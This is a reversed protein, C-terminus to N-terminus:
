RADLQDNLLDRWRSLCYGLECEAQLLSHRSQRQGFTAKRLVPLAVQALGDQQDLDVWLAQDSGLVYNIAPDRNVMLPSGCAAAQFLGWSTVYSRSFYVHLDTRSLMMMYDGYNLSGTFHVRSVDLRDGLEELLAQKWSGDPRNAQYSYACRDQGAIVVELNPLAELLPPLMRMFEPFGRLPEMGRTAYTLLCSSASILLPKELETGNLVLEDSIQIPRFFSTDVGDFIVCIKKQYHKPFQQQQWVTPTVAFDCQELEQLIVSNRMTTRLRDDFSYDKFLWSSTIDLFWWEMYAILRTNAFLHQVFLSLGNGGHVVTIRPQFGEDNLRLLERLVAQGNLVAEETTLLYPHIDPSVARHLEYRRVEVGELPWAEPDKRNTLFVVRHGEVALNRALHVFQAPYNGHIFLIDM